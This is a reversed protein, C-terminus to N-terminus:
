DLRLVLDARRRTQAILEANRQDSGLAWRHADEPSKGFSVHRNILRQVRVSDDTEVYWRQDLLESVEGWLGESHLLYNGETVVLPVPSEVPISGAIPEEIERHFRPAYVTVGGVAERLRRLLAVYSAVDFTDIAGKRQRRGLRELEANALHFGDMPVWVALGSLDDVLRGAVSSKGAGPTGTIGLIRRWGPKALRRARELADQYSVVPPDEEKEVGGGSASKM